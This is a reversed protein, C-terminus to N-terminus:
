GHLNRTSTPTAKSNGTGHRSHCRGPAEEPLNVMGAAEGIQAYDYTDMMPSSNGFVKQIIEETEWDFDMLTSRLPQRVLYTKLTDLQKRLQELIM